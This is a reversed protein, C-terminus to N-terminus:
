ITWDLNAGGSSDTRALLRQLIPGLREAPLEAVVAQLEPRHTSVTLVASSAHKWLDLTAAKCPASVDLGALAPPILTQMEHWIGVDARGELIAVPVRPFECQVFEVEETGDGFEARTLRSQDWSSPDIAVRLSAPAVGVQRRLVVLRGPAYYTGSAHVAAVTVDTGATQAEHLVGSSVMAMDASGDRVANLRQQAGRLYSLSFPVDLREFQETLYEAMAHVEIPGRPPLAVRVSELEALQWLHGIRVADIRRGLHGRAATTLSGTSELIKLAQQVTGSGVSLQSRYSGINPLTEGVGLSLADIAIKRVAGQTARQLLASAREIPERGPAVKPESVRIM